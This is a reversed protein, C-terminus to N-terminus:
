YHISAFVPFHDSITSVYNPYLDIMENQLINFSNVQYLPQLENSILINDIISGLRHSSESSTELSVPFFSVTDDIFNKYPSDQGNTISMDLKDNFDGLIIVHDDSFNVDIYNKLSLSFTKRKNYSTIDDFAKAHLAITYIISNNWKSKFKCLLPPRSSNSNIETLKASSILELESKNYIIGISQSPDNYVSESLESSFNGLDSALDKFKQHNSIEQIAILDAKISQLIKLIDQYKKEEDSNNEKYFFELNWTLVEISSDSISLNTLNNKKEDSSTNTACSAILLILILFKIIIM